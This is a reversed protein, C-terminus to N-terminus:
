LEYEIFFMLIRLFGSYGAQSKEIGSGRAQIM